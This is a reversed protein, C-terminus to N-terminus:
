PRDALRNKCVPDGNGRTFSMAERAEELMHCLRIEDHERMNSKREIM